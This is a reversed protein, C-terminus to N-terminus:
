RVSVKRALYASSNTREVAQNISTHKIGPQDSTQYIDVARAFPSSHLPFLRIPSLLLVAQPYEQVRGECTRSSVHGAALRDYQSETAVSQLTGM